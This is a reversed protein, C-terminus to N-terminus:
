LSRYLLYNCGTLTQEEMNGEEAVSFPVFLATLAMILSAVFFLMRIKRTEKNEKNYKIGM